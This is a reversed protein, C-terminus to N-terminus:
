QGMSAHFGRKDTGTLMKVHTGDVDISFIQSEGTWQECKPRDESAMFQAGQVNLTTFLVSKGDATWAPFCFEQRKSFALRQVEAGDPDMVYIAHRANDRDSVFVITSGDPSWAPDSDEAAHNTLRRVDTGDARASYIEFNGDRRSTFVLRSGDPSFSPTAGQEVLKVQNSGDANMVYLDPKQRSKAIRFVAFAIKKGDPSWTPDAAVQDTFSTLQTLGKGDINVLFIQAYDSGVAYSFAIKSGDPSLAPENGRVKLDKIGSGDPNMLALRNSSESPLVHGTIEATRRPRVTLETGIDVAAERQVFVIKRSSQSSQAFAAGSLLLVATLALATKHM